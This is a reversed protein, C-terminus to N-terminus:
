KIFAKVEDNNEILNSLEYHLEKESKDVVTQVPNLKDWKYIAELRTEHDDRNFAQITFPNSLSAETVRKVSRVETDVVSTLYPVGVDHYIYSYFIRKFAVRQSTQPSSFPVFERKFVNNIEGLLSAIQLAFLESAYEYREPENVLLHDIPKPCDFFANMIQDNVVDLNNVSINSTQNQYTSFQDKFCKVLIQNILTRNVPLITKLVGTPENDYVYDLAIELGTQFLTSQAGNQSSICDFFSPSINNSPYMKELLNSYLRSVSKIEEPSPTCGKEINNNLLVLVESIWYELAQTCRYRLEIMSDAFNLINPSTKEEVNMSQLLAADIIQPYLWNLTDRLYKIIGGVIVRIDDNIIEDIGSKFSAHTSTTDGAKTKQSVFRKEDFKSLKLNLMFAFIGKATEIVEDAGNREDPAKFVSKNKNVKQLSKEMLNEITIDNVVDGCLQYESRGLKGKSFIDKLYEHLKPENDRAICVKCLATHADTGDRGTMFYRIFRFLRDEAQILSDMINPLEDNNSNIIKFNEIFLKLLKKCESKSALLANKQKGIINNIVYGMGDCIVDNYYHCNTDAALKNELLQKMRLDYNSDWLKIKRNQDFDISLFVPKIVPIVGADNCNTAVHTLLNRNNEHFADEETSSLNWSNNSFCNNTQNVVITCKELFTKLINKERMKEALHEISTPNAGHTKYIAETVIITSDDSSESLLKEIRDTIADDNNVASSGATTARLGPFDILLGYVLAKNTYIAVQLPPSTTTIAPQNINEFEILGGLITEATHTPNQRDSYDQVEKDADADNTANFYFRCPENLDINHVYYETILKTSEAAASYTVDHGLILQLIASKGTSGRGTIAIKQERGKYQNSSSLLQKVNQAKLLLSGLEKGNINQLDTTSIEVIDELFKRLKNSNVWPYKPPVSSQSNASFKYKSRLHNIDCLNSHDDVQKTYNILKEQNQFFAEITDRKLDSEFNFNVKVEEKERSM